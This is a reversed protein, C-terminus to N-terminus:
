LRGVPRMEKSIKADFDLLLTKLETVLKQKDPRNILNWEESIDEHLNFLEKRTHSYKWPGKRITEIKGNRAYYYFARENNDACQPAFLLTSIDIGDIKKEPLSAGTLQAITPLIDMATTVKSCITAAPIKNPWRVICPVRQGGEWTTGKEGRLPGTSGGDQKYLKWPGNDSTFIILTNDDVGEEKLTQLVKGVSWDIEEIVDGYKGRASVGEFKESRYLPIHPQPHAFYLFFPSKKNKKIFSVAEKTFSQTTKSQDPEWELIDNNRMLPLRGKYNKRGLLAQEKASMDNSYPYGYYYDFGQQTPLFKTHHGLHWKGVMGTKYGKQKLIEAITTEKPNLGRKDRQFLVGKHLSVRKPYCGTMLAARSPTCVPSAVYFQTLKCGQTAMKDINPTNITPNGYCSLDGYGQDDTFIIVVNPKVIQKEQATATTVLSSLVTTAFLSKKQM